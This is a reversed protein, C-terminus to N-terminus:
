KALKLDNVLKVDIRALCESISTCPTVPQPPATKVATWIRKINLQKAQSMLPQPFKGVSAELLVCVSKGDISRCRILSSDKENGPEFNLTDFFAPAGTNKSLYIDTSGYNGGFLSGSPQTFNQLTITYTDADNKFIANDISTSDLCQSPNSYYDSGKSYTKPCFYTGSTPGYKFLRKNPDQVLVGSSTITFGMKSLDTQQDPTFITTYETFLPITLTNGSVQANASIAVTAFLAMGFLVLFPVMLIKPNM